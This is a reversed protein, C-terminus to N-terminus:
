VFLHPRYIYVYIYINYISVMWLSFIMKPDELCRYVMTYGLKPAGLEKKASHSPSLWRFYCLVGQYVNVYSSFLEM